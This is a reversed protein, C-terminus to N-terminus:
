CLRLAVAAVADDGVRLDAVRVSATGGGPLPVEVTAPVDVFGAAFRDPGISLGSGIAKLCAEKRTWLRLFDRTRGLPDGASWAAREAPTFVQRALDAADPVARLREVDVGWDGGHPAWLLLGIDDSHSLNFAGGHAPAALSPKGHAGHAFALSAPDAGVAAGIARRLGVHAAAFRRRHDAFVFRDRRDREDTSLCSADYPAVSLDLRWLSPPAAAGSAAAWGGDWGTFPLAVCTPPADAPSGSPLVDQEM